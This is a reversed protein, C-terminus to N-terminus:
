LTSGSDYFGKTTQPLLMYRDITQMGDEWGFCIKAYYGFAVLKQIWELQAKWSPSKMESPRYRRNQKMELFLGFYGGKAQPLLLDPFGRSLGALRLNVGERASRKGENPIHVLQINKLAAWKVLAKQHSLETMPKITTMM